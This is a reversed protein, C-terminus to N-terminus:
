VALRGEHWHAETLQARLTQAVLHPGQVLLRVQGHGEHVGAGVVDAHRREAVLCDIALQVGQGSHRGLPGEQGVVGGVGAAPAFRQGGVLRATGDGLKRDHRERQGVLQLDGAHAVTQVQGSNRREGALPRALGPGPRQDDDAAGQRERVGHGGTRQRVHHDQALGLHHDGGQDLRHGAVAVTVGAVAV